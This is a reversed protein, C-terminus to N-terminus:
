SANEEAAVSAPPAPPKKFMQMTRFEGLVKGMSEPRSKPDKAMTSRILDGFETTINRDHAELAPLQAHLHKNLLENSNSGTYPPRGAVL